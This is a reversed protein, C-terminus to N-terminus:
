VPLDYTVWATETAVKDYLGRARANDKATIWRVVSHGGAAAAGRVADILADGAGTGRADPSVFLDDLFLGSAAALPRAFSRYHAIGVMVDGQMACFGNVEHTDSLLWDFVRERMDPTQEVGYFTAYAQYLVAWTDRDAAVIPRIVPSM